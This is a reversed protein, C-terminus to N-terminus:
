QASYADAFIRTIADKTADRDTIGAAYNQFAVGFPEEIGDPGSFIWWACTDGSALYKGTEVSLQTDPSGAGIIPSLQQIREPIWAKGYDSTVIWDCWKLVESLNESDKYIRFTLNSEVALVAKGDMRPALVYGINIDPNIDLVSGEAWNGQHIMAVKGTAFDSCQLDFTSEMPKNGGYEKILDILDLVFDVQPLDGFAIKSSQVDAFLAAYDGNYADSMSPYTTQPLVWWEGFGTSFPQIGAASLKECVGRFEDLTAPLETIGAQEILDKNYIFAHSQIVFPMGTIEGDLTVSNLCSTSFQKIFGENTLMYSYEKYVKNDNYASSMFLDPINGANIRTKLVTQYDNQLIDMEITVNPFAEHYAEAMEYYQDTLEPSNLMFHLTVPNNQEAYGTTLTLALLACLAIAILKKM